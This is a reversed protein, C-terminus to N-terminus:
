SNKWVPKRKEKFANIGEQADDSVRIKALQEALYMHREIEPLNELAKFAEFGKGIAYPSHGLITEILKNCTEDLTDKTCVHSVIGIEQAKQASFTEALICMQMAQRASTINLLTSIVQLPFIGRKVEPLSFEAEEVAVAFTCGGVLLFGGAMVTGQIKAISPKNLMRFADGITILSKPEPLTENHHDLDPNQFVNLDMGSCFVPGRAEVMVCWIETKHQAYSLAYALENVMTPTFANRKDPRNLIIKFLHGHEEVEIFNFKVGAFKGIAMLSFYM